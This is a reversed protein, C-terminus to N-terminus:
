VSAEILRASSGSSMVNITSAPNSVTNTPMSVGASSLRASHLLFCLRLRSRTASTFRIWRAPICTWPPKMTPKSLSVGEIKSRCISNM